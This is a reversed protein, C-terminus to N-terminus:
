ARGQIRGGYDKSHMLLVHILTFLRRATDADVAVKSWLRRKLLEAAENHIARRGTDIAELREPNARAMADYYSDCVLAYDKLLRRVPTLSLHHGTVHEAKDTTITMMLRANALALCLRYPGGGHGVPTFTNKDLLDFIAIAQERKLQPNAQSNLDGDLSVACLRLGTTCATSVTAATM